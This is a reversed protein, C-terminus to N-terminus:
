ADWKKKRKNEKFWKEWNVHNWIHEGTLKQLAENVAAKAPGRDVGPKPRRDMGAQTPPHEDRFLGALRNILEEVVPKRYRLEIDSYEALANAAAVFEPSNDPFTEAEEANFGAVVLEIGRAEAVAAAVNVFVGNRNAVWVAAASDIADEDVPLEDFTPIEGRRTLASECFEEIWPLGIVAHEIKYHASIRRASEIEEEAARQGYDFTLAMVPEVDDRSAAIALNVLSDLGGDSFGRPCESVPESIGRESGLEEVYHEESTGFGGQKFEASSGDEQGLQFILPFPDCGYFDAGKRPEFDPSYTPHTATVRLRDYRPLYIPININDEEACTTPFSGNKATQASAVNVLAVTTLIM